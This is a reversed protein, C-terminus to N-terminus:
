QRSSAKKQTDHLEITANTAIDIATEHYFHSIVGDKAEVVLPRVAFQVLPGLLIAPVSSISSGTGCYGGYTVTGMAARPDITLAFHDGERRGTIPLDAEDSSYKRTYSCSNVEWLKRRNATRRFHATGNVSGDKAEAFALGLEGEEDYINGVAQVKITGVWRCAPLVGAEKMMAVVRWLHVAEPGGVGSTMFSDRAVVNGDQDVFLVGGAREAIGRAEPKNGGKKFYDDGLGMAHGIEHSLIEPDPTNFVGRMDRSYAFPFDRDPVMDDPGTANWQSHPEASNIFM